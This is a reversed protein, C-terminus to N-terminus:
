YENIMKEVIKRLTKVNQFDITTLSDVQNLEMEQVLINFHTVLLQSNYNKWSIQRLINKEARQILEITSFTKYAPTHFSILELAIKQHYASQYIKEQKEIRSSYAPAIIGATIIEKLLHQIVPSLEDDIDSM